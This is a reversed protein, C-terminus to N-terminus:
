PLSLLHYDICFASVNVAVCYAGQCAVIAGVTLVFLFKVFVRVAVVGKVITCAYRDNIIFPMLIQRTFYVPM